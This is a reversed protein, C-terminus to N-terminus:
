YELVLVLLNRSSLGFCIYLTDLPFSDNNKSKIYDWNFYEWLLIWESLYSMHKLDVLINGIGGTWNWKIYGFVGFEGIMRLLQSRLAPINIKPNEEKEKYSTYIKM